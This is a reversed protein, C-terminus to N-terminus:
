VRPDVPNPKKATCTRYVRTERVTKGNRRTVIRVKVSGKPRGRPRLGRALKRIIM